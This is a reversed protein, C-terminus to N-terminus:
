GRAHSSHVSPLRSTSAKDRSGLDEAEEVECPIRKVM